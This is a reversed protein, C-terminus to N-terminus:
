VSIYVWVNFYEEDFEYKIDGGLNECTKKMSKLGIGHHLVDKKSTSFFEGKVKPREGLTNKIRFMFVSTDAKLEVDIMKEKNVIRNCGEIANDLANGLLVCHEMTIYTLSPQVDLGLKFSIGAKEAEEKKSSIIADMLTNGTNIVLSTHSHNSLKTLETLLKDYQKEKCLVYLIGTRHKFDHSMQRIQEYTSLLQNIHRQQADNQMKMSLLERDKENKSMLNEVLIFVFINVFIISILPIIKSITPAEAVLVVQIFFQQVILISGTPLISLVLTLKITMGEIKVNRFRRVLVILLLYVLYSLTRLQYRYINFQLLEVFSVDQYGTIVFSTILESSAGALFSFVTAMVMEHVKARFCIIGITFITLISVASFVLTYENFHYSNFTKVVVVMLLVFMKWITHIDSKRKLFVHMFYFTLISSTIAFVFEIMVWSFEDMICIVVGQGTVSCGLESCVVM